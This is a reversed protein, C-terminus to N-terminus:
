YKLGIRAFSRTLFYELLVLSIGMLTSLLLISHNELIINLGLMNKLMGHINAALTPEQAALLLAALCAIALVFAAFISVRQTITERNPPNTMRIRRGTYFGAVPGLFANFLPVGMFFGFMGVSYFLYTAVLIIPHFRYALQLWQRLFRVDMLLGIALGGVAFFPILSEPAYLYAGWWGCLFFGIPAVGGFVVFLIIKEFWGQKSAGSKKLGSKKVM